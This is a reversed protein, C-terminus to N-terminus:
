RRWGESEALERAATIILQHRQARERERRESITSM